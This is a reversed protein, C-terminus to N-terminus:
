SVKRQKKRHVKLRDAATEQALPTQGNRYETVLIGKEYLVQTVLIRDEDPIDDAKTGEPYWVKVAIYKHSFGAAGLQEIKWRDIDNVSAM